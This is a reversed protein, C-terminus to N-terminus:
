GAAPLEGIRGSCSRCCCSCRGKTEKTASNKSQRFQFTCHTQKAPPPSPLPISLLLGPHPSDFTVSRPLPLVPPNHLLLLSPSAAKARKREATAKNPNAPLLRRPPQGKSSMAPRARSPSSPSCLRLPSSVLSHRKCQRGRLRAMKGFRCWPQSAPQDWDLEDVSRSQRM